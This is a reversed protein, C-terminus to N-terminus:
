LNSNAQCLAEVTTKAEDALAALEPYSDLIGDEQLQEVLDVILNEATTMTAKAIKTTAPTSYM